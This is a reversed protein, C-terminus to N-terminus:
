AGRDLSSEEAQTDDERPATAAVPVPVPRHVTRRRVKKVPPAKKKRDSKATAALPTGPLPRRSGADTRERDKIFAKIIKLAARAERETRQGKFYAALEKNARLVEQERLEQNDAKSPRADDDRNVSKKHPRAM